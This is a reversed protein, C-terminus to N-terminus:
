GAPDLCCSPMPALRDCSSDPRMVLNLQHSARTLLELSSGHCLANISDPVQVWAAADAGSEMTLLKRFEGISDDWKQMHM